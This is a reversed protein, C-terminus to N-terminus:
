INYNVATKSTKEQYREVLIRLTIAELNRIISDAIEDWIQRTVLLSASRSDDSGNLEDILVLGGELTEVIERVTIEEPGKALVYGGHAGRFSNVLGQSRLPIIIQSLYKESIAEKKAIDKLFLPGKQYGLALALMLRIGYRSRTSIKM